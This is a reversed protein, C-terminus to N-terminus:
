GQELQMLQKAFSKLEKVSINLPQNAFLFVDTANFFQHIEHELKAYHPYRIFLSSLQETSMSSQMTADFANRIAKVAAYLATRGQDKRLAGIQRFALRFPQAHKAGFALWDNKWALYILAWVMVLASITMAVIDATYAKAPPKADARPKLHAEDLVTPIVPSVIISAAKVPVKISTKDKVFQLALAGLKYSRVEQVSRFNQWYLYITFQTRTGFKQQKTDVKVLDYYTKNGVSPLSSADLVYGSPAEITVTQLTIDALHYGLERTQSHVTFQAQLAEVTATQAACSIAWVLLCLLQFILRM